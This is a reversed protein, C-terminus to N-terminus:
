ADFSGTRFPLDIATGGALRLKPRVRHGVTLM